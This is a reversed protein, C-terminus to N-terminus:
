TNLPVGTRWAETVKNDTKPMSNRTSKSPTQALVDTKKRM